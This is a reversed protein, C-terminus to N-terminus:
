ARRRRAVRDWLARYAIAWIGAGAAILAIGHTATTPGTEGAWSPSTLMVWAGELILLVGVASCILRATSRNIAGEFLQLVVAITLVAVGLAPIIWVLSM